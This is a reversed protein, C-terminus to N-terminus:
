TDVRGIYKFHILRAAFMMWLLWSIPVFILFVTLIIWGDPIETRVVLTYIPGSASAVIVGVVVGYGM